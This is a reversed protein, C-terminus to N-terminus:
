SSTQLHPDGLDLLPIRNPGHVEVPNSAKWDENVTETVGDLHSDGYIALIEVSPVLLRIIVQIIM